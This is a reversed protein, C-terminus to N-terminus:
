FNENEVNENVEKAILDALLKYGQEGFHLGDNKIGRCLKALNGQRLMEECLDIYTFKYENAVEKVVQAYAAVLENNRVHQKQEDVAPPSILIVNEPWYLCIISSAILEMNQKFQEIPVQKHIALDNTGLLIVIKDCKEKTLVLESLRAFFAGSNIGSVATNMLEIESIRKKLEYNLRPESLGERRAIISDGTLLIKM